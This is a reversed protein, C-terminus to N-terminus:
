RAGPVVQYQLETYEERGNRNIVIEVPQGEDMKEIRAQFEKMTLVPEGNMQTIIDGNQIGASYAPGGSISEYVYIGKPTGDGTMDETIEQGKIGLYAVPIGNSMKELIGKYDSIGEAITTGSNSENEYNDTIWGIIEGATNLLFTGADANGRVGAFMIGTTGDTTQVNRAVYHVTGYDFSYPMGLPAGVSLVLDGAKVTYSNGLKFPEIATLKEKPLESKKVSIVALGTVKDAQKKTGKLETGDYLTVHIADAAELATEPVIVLIESDTVAIVAGAYQGASEIPNDFWDTQRKVSHVTVISKNAKQGAQKLNNFIDDVDHIDFHYNEVADKVLESIPTSEKEEAETTPEAALTTEEDKPISITQSEGTGNGGIYREAFPKSLVFTVAAIVGFLAALFLFAAARKALQRRTMPQKVIKENIFKKKKPLESGPGKIEPM